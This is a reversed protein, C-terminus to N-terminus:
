RQLYLLFRDLRRKHSGRGFLNGCTNLITCCLLVRSMNSPLDSECPVLPHCGVGHSRGPVALVTRPEPMHSPPAPAPAADGEGGEEKVEKEGNGDGGDGGGGGGDGGRAKQLEDETVVGDSM